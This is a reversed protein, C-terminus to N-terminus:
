FVQVGGIGCETGKPLITSVSNMKKSLDIVQVGQNAKIALDLQTTKIEITEFSKGCKQQCYEANDVNCAKYDTGISDCYSVMRYNDKDEDRATCKNYVTNPNVPVAPQESVLTTELGCECCNEAPNNFVSSAYKLSTVEGDQCYRQAFM